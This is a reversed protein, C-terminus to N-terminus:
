SKNISNLKNYCKLTARIDEQADHAGEFNCGFFHKYLEQLKPYKYGYKGKIKLLQISEKMTDYYKKNYLYDIDNYRELRNLEIELAQLDYQINHAVIMNCSSLDELFIDIIESFDYGKNSIETTIGHIHSNTIEIPVNLVFNNYTAKRKTITNYTCWALQCVYVNDDKGVLGSTETDFVLIVTM